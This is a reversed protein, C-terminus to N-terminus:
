CGCDCDCCDCGSDGCDPCDCCCDCCDCCKKSSRGASGFNKKNKQELLGPSMGLIGGGISQLHETFLFYVTDPSILHLKAFKERIENHAKQFIYKAEAQIRYHPFVCSLANFKKHIRDRYLDRYSDLLYVIRGFMSGIHFLIERNEPMRALVATHAAIHGAATETPRSYFLFDKGPSKEAVQQVQMQKEVVSLPKGLMRKNKGATLLWKGALRSFLTEAYPICGDQDRIHDRILAAGMLASIGAGYCIGPAHNQIVPIKQFGQLPCRGSTKEYSKESQAECLLSLMVADGNLTMRATQGYYKGLALCLGCYHATWQERYIRNPGCGKMLGFMKVAEGKDARTRCYFIGRGGSSSKLEPTFPLIGPIM